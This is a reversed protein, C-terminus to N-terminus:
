KIWKLFGEKELTKLVNKAAQEANVRKEKLEKRCRYYVVLAKKKDIKEFKTVFEVGGNNKVVSITKIADNHLAEFLDDMSISSNRPHNHMVFLGDGKNEIQSSFDVSTDDGKIVIKNALGKRFIFAVEKNENNDRAYRLLEKHQEAIFKCQEPTYGDIQHVKVRNIANDTIQTLPKDLNESLRERIKGFNKVAKLLRNKKEKTWGQGSGKDTFKGDKDRPHESEKFEAM